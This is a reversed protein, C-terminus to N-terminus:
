IDKSIELAREFLLDIDRKQTRHNTINVRIATRGKLKTTSPAATGEEQLRFVIEENLTDLSQEDLGEQLVRFCCINLSVPAMLETTTNAEVRSALYNAQLCNREIVRALKDVGHETLQAWVKLARFGRSLEPGYDVPWPHGAGIGRQMSKLYEPRESFARYHDKESRILVCGADYNVHMWKHFDFAVSDAKELGELKTRLANSLMGLAGFAGDIHFWLNERKGIEALANLDDIAGTNVTGATGILAFPSHGAAKDSAIAEELASIDLCYDSKVPIKRLADTGLGLIDFTRAVCSHTQESTYGVLQAAQVGARRGKWALARDRAAKLAVLTAISTGTVVLGSATDPFSMMQRCWDVVQREVYIAGHDRGGLNANLAASAIDALLNSPTGSGQVWGFFRPHTNGAGYPLLEAIQSKTSEIGAAGKPLPTRLASKYEAPYPTWVRGSGANKMHSIATDLMDHAANRFVEWDKPDLTESSNTKAQHINM